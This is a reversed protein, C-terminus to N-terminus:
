LWVSRSMLLFFIFDVSPEKMYWFGGLDLDVSSFSWIIFHLTYCLLFVLVHYLFRYNSSFIM